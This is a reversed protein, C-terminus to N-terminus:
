DLFRDLLWKVASIILAGLFAALFGSVLFGKVFYSAFWFLLANIVFTFLGLTILNVPLTLLLFIPRVFINLVGLMLAVLIATTFSSVSIGSVLNYETIALLAFAVVLIKIVIKM